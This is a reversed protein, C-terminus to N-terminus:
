YEYNDVGKFTSHPSMDITSPTTTPRQNPQSPSMGQQIMDQKMFSINLSYFNGVDNSM